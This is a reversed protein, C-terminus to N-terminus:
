ASRSLSHTLLTFKYIVNVAWFVNAVSLRMRCWEPVSHRDNKVPFDSTIVVCGYINYYLARLEKVVHRRNYFVCM